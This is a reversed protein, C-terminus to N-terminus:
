EGLEISLCELETQNQYAWETVAPPFLDANDSERGTRMTYAYGEAAALLFSVLSRLGDELTMGVGVGSKLDSACHAFDSTQIKYTFTRREGKRIRGGGLGVTANGIERVIM